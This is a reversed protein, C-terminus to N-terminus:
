HLAAIDIFLRHALLTSTVHTATTRMQLRGPKTLLIGMLVMHMNCLCHKNSHHLCAHAWRIHLPEVKAQVAVYHMNRGDFCQEVQTQMTNCHM